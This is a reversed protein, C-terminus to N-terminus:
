LSDCFFIWVLTVTHIFLYSLFYCAFILDRARNSYTKDITQELMLWSDNVIYRFFLFAISFMVYGFVIFPGISKEFGLLDQAILNLLVGISVSTLSFFITTCALVFNSYRKPHTVRLPSLLRKSAKLIFLPWHDFLYITM